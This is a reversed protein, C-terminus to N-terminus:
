HKEIVWIAKQHKTRLLTAPEYTLPEIVFIQVAQKSLKISNKILLLLEFYKVLHQSEYSEISM